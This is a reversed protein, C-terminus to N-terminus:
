SGSLKQSGTNAPNELGLSGTVITGKQGRASQLRKIENERATKIAPDIPTPPEPPPEPLAPTKPVSPVGGCM